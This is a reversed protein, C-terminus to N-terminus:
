KALASASGSLVPVWAFDTRSVDGFRPESTTCALWPRVKLTVTSGRAGVEAVREALAKAVAAPLDDADAVIATGAMTLEGFQKMGALPYRLTLVVKTGLVGSELAPDGGPVALYVISGDNAFCVQDVRSGGDNEDRSLLLTRQGSLITEVDTNDQPAIM